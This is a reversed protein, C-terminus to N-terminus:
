IKEENYRIAGDPNHKWDNIFEYITRSEEALKSDPDEAIKIAAETVSMINGDPDMMCSNNGPGIMMFDKYEPTKRSDAPMADDLM